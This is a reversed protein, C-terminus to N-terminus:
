RKLPFLKELQKDLQNIVAGRAANQLMQGALKDMTRRDIRPQTLTGEIPVQLSQGKFGSLIPEQSVWQDLIRIEAVLSLTEDLGVSGSTRVPVEGAMFELGQHYVRGQVVRFDVTQNALSLLKEDRAETPPQKRAVIAAIQRGLLIFQDALPGPKVQVSHVLMQGAVDSKNASDTLPIRAGDLNISFSGEAITADALVPAVYKLARACLEPTVRVQNVVQGKPLTLEAPTTTLLVTPALLVKGGNVPLELPQAKLTGDALTASLLGQGAQIGYADISNWGV